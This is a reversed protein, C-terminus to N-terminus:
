LIHKGHGEDLQMGDQQKQEMQVVVAPELWYFRELGRLTGQSPSTATAAESQPPCLELDSARAVLHKAAAVAYHQQRMWQRCILTQLDRSLFSTQL